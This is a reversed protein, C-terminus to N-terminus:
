LWEWMRYELWEQRKLGQYRGHEGRGSPRQVHLERWWSLEEKGMERKHM